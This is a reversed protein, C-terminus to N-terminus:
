LHVSAPLQCSAAILLQCFAGVSIRRVGEETGLEEGRM